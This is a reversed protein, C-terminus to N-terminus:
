ISMIPNVKGTWVALGAAVGTGLSTTSAGTSVSVHSFSVQIERLSSDVGTAFGHLRYIEQELNRQVNLQIEEGMSKASQQIIPSVQNGLYTMFDEINKRGLDNETIRADDIVREAM